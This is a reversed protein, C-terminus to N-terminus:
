VNLFSSARIGFASHIVFSSDPITPNRYPAALKPNRDNPNIKDNTMRIEDNM